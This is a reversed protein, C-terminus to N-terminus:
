KNDILIIQKIQTIAPFLFCFFFSALFTKNTSKKKTHNIKIYYKQYKQQKSLLKNTLQKNLKKLM